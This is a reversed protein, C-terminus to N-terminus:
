CSTVEVRPVVVSRNRPNVCSQNNASNLWGVNPSRSCPRYCKNIVWENLRNQTICKTRTSCKAAGFGERKTMYVVLGIAIAIILLALGNKKVFNALNM